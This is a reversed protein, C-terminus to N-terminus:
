KKSAVFDSYSNYEIMYKKRVLYIRSSIEALPMDSYSDTYLIDVRNYGMSKIIDVKNKGYCHHEIGCIINNEVKVTSAIVKSEPFIPKVYELLSASVILVEYNPNSLITLYKQWHTKNIKVKQSYKESFAKYQLYDKPCFHNLGYEKLKKISLLGYKTLLMFIIYVPIYIISTKNRLACYLYFEYMTDKETITKDFDLVVIKSM